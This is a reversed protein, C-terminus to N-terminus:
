WIRGAQARIRVCPEQRSVAAAPSKTKKTKAAGGSKRCLWQKAAWSFGDCVHSPRFIPSELCLLPAVEFSVCVCVCRGPNGGSHTAPRRSLCHQQARLLGVDRAVAPRKSRCGGFPTHRAHKRPRNTQFTGNQPDM